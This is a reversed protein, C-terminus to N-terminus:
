SALCLGKVIIKKTKYFNSFSRDIHKNQNHSSHGCGMNKTARNVEGDELEMTCTTSLLIFITPNTSANLPLSSLRL